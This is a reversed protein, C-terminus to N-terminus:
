NFFIILGLCTYVIPVLWDSVRELTKELLNNKSLWSGALCWLLVIVGFTIIVLLTELYSYQSFLPLYVSLNDSGNSLTILTLTPITLKTQTVDTTPINKHKIFKVFGIMGITFPIAGLLHIPLVDTSTLLNGLIISTILITYIGLLQSIIITQYDKKSKAQTFFLTLLFLDDINTSVFATIIVPLLSM